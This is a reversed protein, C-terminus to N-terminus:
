RPGALACALAPAQMPVHNRGVVGFVREGSRAAESLLRVMHRNRNNSDARNIAALFIGGTEADNGLPDFWSGPVTRWDRDPWYRAAAAALGPVDTFTLTIGAQQGMRAIRGLLTSMAADLREGALNDRDGLRAAERLSFFLLVQDLPYQRLLMGLQEGPNPELSRVPINAERALFRLYGSEGRSRITEEATEGIGRDPGEFFAMTPAAERFASAIRAFQEHAPDREHAAGILTLGEGRFDWQQGPAERWDAYDLVQATCDQQAAPQSAAAAIAIILM